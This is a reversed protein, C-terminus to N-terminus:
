CRGRRSTSQKDRCYVTDRCKHSTLNVTSLGFITQNWLQLVLIVETNLFETLFRRAVQSPNSLRVVNICARVHGTRMEIVDSTKM